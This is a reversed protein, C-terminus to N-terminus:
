HKISFDDYVTKATRWDVSVGAVQARLSGENLYEIFDKLTDPYGQACVVVTGDPQNKVWGRLALEVASDQTYARYAVNQVEGSVVCYIEMM